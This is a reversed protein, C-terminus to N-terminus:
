KSLKRIPKGTANAMEYLYIFDKKPKEGFFFIFADSNEMLLNNRTILADKGYQSFDAIFYQCDINYFKTFEEVFNDGISNIQLTEGADNKSKLCKICKNCCFDKDNISDAGIISVRFMYM